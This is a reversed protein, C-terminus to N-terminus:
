KKCSCIPGRWSWPNGNIVSRVTVQFRQENVQQEEYEVAPLRRKILLEQFRGVWNSGDVLNPVDVASEQPPGSDVSSASTVAVVDDGGPSSGPDTGVDLGSHDKGSSPVHEPNLLTLGGQQAGRLVQHLDSLALAASAHKALKKSGM